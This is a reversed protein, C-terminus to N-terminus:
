RKLMDTSVCPPLPAAVAPHPVAPNQPAVSQCFRHWPLARTPPRWPPVGAVSSRHDIFQPLESINMSFEDFFTIRVSDLLPAYVHALPVELYMPSIPPPRHVSNCSRFGLGLTKLQTLSPLSMYGSDPINWLDLDILDSASSLLPRIVLFPISVMPCIWWPAYRSPSAGDSPVSGDVGEM